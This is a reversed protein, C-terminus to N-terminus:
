LDSFSNAWNLAEMFCKPLGEKKLGLRSATLTTTKWDASEYGSVLKLYEGLIGEGSILAKKIEESLPLKQMLAEMSDDLVADIFSFLGLTFLEDANAKGGDLGGALECFKARIVSSLVLESPKDQALNSMAILSVFQRIQKEGLLVIAQKISSIKDRRRFFASNVYRLLKYSIGLDKTIILELKNFELNEKNAEAMIRILNMKPSSIDKGNLVQPKSFFYGQFYSFGMDLAAHFEDYTEVKEALLRLPFPKLKRVTERLVDRALARFDLKIINAHPILVRYEPKFFFDDLAIPYGRRSLERCAVVLEANPDVDELIEVVLIKPSFILPLKKVISAEPFNIFAPAGATIEEIGISLFSNTLVKSTASESDIGPFVNSLGDRFLLEYGFIKMNRSFIPQRAVYVDM